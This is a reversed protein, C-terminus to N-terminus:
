DLLSQVGDDNQSCPVQPIVAIAANKVTSQGTDGADNFIQM